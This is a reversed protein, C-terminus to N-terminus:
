FLNTRLVFPNIKKSISVQGNPHFDVSLIANLHGELFMICRGTRLDWIRGFGDMGRYDYWTIYVLMKVAHSM